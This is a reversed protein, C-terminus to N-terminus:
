LSTLRVWEDECKPCLGDEPHLNETATGCMPCVDGDFTYEEDEDELETHPVCKDCWLRIIRANTTPEFPMEVGCGCCVDVDSMLLPVRRRRDNKMENDNRM